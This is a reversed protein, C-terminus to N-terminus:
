LLIARKSIYGARGPWPPYGGLILVIPKWGALDPWTPKNPTSRHDQFTDPVLTGTSRRGSKRRRTIRRRAGLAVVINRRM